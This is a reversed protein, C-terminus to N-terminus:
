LNPGSVIKATSIATKLREWSKVGDRAWKEPSSEEEHMTRHFIEMSVWGHWGKDVLLAKCFDVLPFYGGRETDLLFLRGYLCWTETPDHGDQHAPHGPFMLQEQREADSLQLYLIKENPCTALLRATTAQLAMEAGPLKGFPAHPDAWLRAFIHYTDLCVGFNPRDVLKAIRLSDEWYAVHVGWAIAEYAFSIIPGSEAGLEALARLEHVIVDEDGTSNQDYTSPIQIISTGAARAIDIWHKAVELRKELPPDLMGEFNEFPCLVLITLGERQCIQKVEVAADFTSLSHSAAFRQLDSWVLEIGKMGARSAAQLKRELTHAEHWGLSVSAIALPNQIVAM